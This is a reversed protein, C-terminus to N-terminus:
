GYHHWSNAVTGAGDFILVAINSKISAAAANTVSGGGYLAVGFNGGTISASAANTNVSGGSHLYVGLATPPPPQSAAPISCRGPAAM